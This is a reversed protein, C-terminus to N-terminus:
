WDAPISLKARLDAKIQAACDAVGPLSSKPAVLSSLESWGARGRGLAAYDYYLTLARGVYEGSLDLNSPGIASLKAQGDSIRQEFFKPFRAAVSVFKGGRWSMIDTKAAAMVTTSFRPCAVTLARGLPSSETVIEWRGDEDLDVLRGEPFAGARAFRGKQYRAVFLTSRGLPTNVMRYVLARSGDKFFDPFRKQTLSEELRPTEAAGPHFFVVYPKGKLTAYIKVADESLVARYPVGNLTESFEAAGASLALLAALVAKM